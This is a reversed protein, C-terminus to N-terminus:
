REFFRVKKHAEERRGGGEWGGPGQATACQFRVPTIRDADMLSIPLGPKGIKVEEGNDPVLRPPSELEIPSLCTHRVKAVTPYRGNRFVFITLNPMERRMRLLLRQCMSRDYELIVRYWQIVDHIKEVKLGIGSM